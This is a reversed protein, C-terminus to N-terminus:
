ESSHPMGQEIKELETFHDEVFKLNAPSVVGEAKSYDPIQGARKMSVMFYAQMYTFMCTVYERPTMGAKRIMAAMEPAKTEIKKAADEIDKADDNATGTDKAVEPHAKQYADMNKTIEAMKQIKDMSLSYSYLEKQMPDNKPDKAQAAGAVTMAGASTLCLASCVVVALWRKAFQFM